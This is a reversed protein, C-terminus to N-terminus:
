NGLTMGEANNIDIKGGLSSKSEIEGRLSTM